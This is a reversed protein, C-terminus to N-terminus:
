YEVLWNYYLLFMGESKPELWCTHTRNEMHEARGLSNVADGGVQSDYRRWTSLLVGSKTVVFALIPVAKAATLDGM